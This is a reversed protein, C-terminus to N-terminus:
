GRHRCPNIAVVEEPKYAVIAGDPRRVMLYGDKRQGEYTGRRHIGYCDADVEQGVAPPTFPLLFQYTM